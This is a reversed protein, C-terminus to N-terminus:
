VVSLTAPARAATSLLSTTNTNAGSRAVSRVQLPTTQTTPNVNTTLGCEAVVKLELPM